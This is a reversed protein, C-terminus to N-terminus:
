DILKPSRGGGGFTSGEDNGTVQEYRRVRIAVMMDKRTM